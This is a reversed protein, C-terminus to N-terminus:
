LVIGCLWFHRHGVKRQCLQKDAHTKSGFFEYDTIGMTVKGVRGYGTSKMVTGVWNHLSYHDSDVCLSGDASAKPPTSVFGVMRGASTAVLALVVEHVHLPHTLEVRYYEAM